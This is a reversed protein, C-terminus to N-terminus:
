QAPLPKFKGRPNGGALVQVGSGGSQPIGNLAEFLSTQWGISRQDEFRGGGLNRYLRGCDKENKNGWHPISNTVYLDPLGDGDYDGFACGGIMTPILKLRQMDSGIKFDIGSAKTIDRFVGHGSPGVAATACAVVLLLAAILRSSSKM